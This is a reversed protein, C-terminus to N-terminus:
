MSPLVIDKKTSAIIKLLAESEKKPVRHKYLVEKFLVVMRAWDKEQIRLKVHSDKMNKGTYTCPGGTHQCVMSTIQYKLYAPAVRKRAADIHKNKNLQKDPQLVDVFDSVMVSIPELGGLREYLSQHNGGEHATAIPVSMPVSALLLLSFVIKLM